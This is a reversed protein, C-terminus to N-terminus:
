KISGYRGVRLQLIGIGATGCDKVACEAELAAVMTACYAIRRFRSQRIVAAFDGPTLKQLRALKVL